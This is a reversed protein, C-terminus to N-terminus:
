VLHAANHPLPSTATNHLCCANELRGSACGHAPRGSLRTRSSCWLGQLEWHWVEQPMQREPWGASAGAASGCGDGASGAGAEGGASGEGWGALLSGQASRDM